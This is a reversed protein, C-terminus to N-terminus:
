KSKNIASKIMANAVSTECNAIAPITASLLRHKYVSYNMVKYTVKYTNWALAPSHFGLVGKHIKPASAPTATCM